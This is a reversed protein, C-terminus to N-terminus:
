AMEEREKRGGRRRRGRKRKRAEGGRGRGGGEERRGGVQMNAATAGKGWFYALHAMEELTVTAHNKKYDLFIADL